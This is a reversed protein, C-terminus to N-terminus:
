ALSFSKMGPLKNCTCLFFPSWMLTFLSKANRKTEAEVPVGSHGGNDVDINGKEYETSIQEIGM